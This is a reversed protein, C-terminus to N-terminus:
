AANRLNRKYAAIKSRDGTRSAEAELRELEKDATATVPASGRQVTDVDPAPPKKRTVVKLNREMDRIAIAFRIPDAEKALAALRAPHKALAVVVKAPDDAYGVIVSQMLEPLAAVVAKEAEQKQEAPLPLAALKTHYNIKKREFEQNQVEAARQADAEQTEAQQKRANWARWDTKFREEDWDCGELTPEDGVEIRPASVQRFQHLERKADRLEQRLQRIAPTEEPEPEVGDLEISIEDEGETAETQAEEQGDSEAGEQADLVLEENPEDAM